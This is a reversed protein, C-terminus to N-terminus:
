YFIYKLSLVFIGKYYGNELMERNIVIVDFDCLLGDNISYVWGYIIVNQGCKWVLQM